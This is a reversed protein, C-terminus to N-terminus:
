NWLSTSCLLYASLSVPAQNAGADPWDGALGRAFGRM